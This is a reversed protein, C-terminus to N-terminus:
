YTNRSQGEETIHQLNGDFMCQTQLLNIVSINSLTCHLITTYTDPQQITPRLDIRKLSDSSTTRTNRICYYNNIIQHHKILYSMMMMMKM